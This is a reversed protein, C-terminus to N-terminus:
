FKNAFSFIYSPLLISGVFVGVAIFCRLRYKKGEDTLLGPFVLANAPNWLTKRGWISTGPRTRRIAKIGYFLTACWAVLGIYIFSDELIALTESM